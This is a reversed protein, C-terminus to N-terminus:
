KQKRTRKIRKTLKLVIYDDEASVAVGYAPEDSDDEHWVENVVSRFLSAFAKQQAEGAIGYKRADGLAMEEVDNTLQKRLESNASNRGRNSGRWEVPESTVSQPLEVRVRQKAPTKGNAQKKPAAM